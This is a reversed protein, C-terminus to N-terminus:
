LMYIAIISVMIARARQKRTTNNESLRSDSACSSVGGLTEGTPPAGGLAEGTLV